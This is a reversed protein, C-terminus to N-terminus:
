AGRTPFLELLFVPALLARAANLIAEKIKEYETSVRNLIAEKIKEYETSVRGM